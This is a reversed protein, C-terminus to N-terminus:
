ERKKALSKQKIRYVSHIALVLPVMIIMGTIWAGNYDGTKDFMAAAYVPSIGTGVYMGLM